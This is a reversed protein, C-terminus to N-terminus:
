AAKFDAVIQAGIPNQSLWSEFVAVDTKLADLASKANNSITGSLQVPRDTSLRRGKVARRVLCQYPISSALLVIFFGNAANLALVVGGYRGDVGRDSM